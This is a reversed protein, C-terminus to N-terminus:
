PGGGKAGKKKKRRNGDNTAAPTASGPVAKNRAEAAKGKPTTTSSGGSGPVQSHDGSDDEEGDEGTDPFLAAREDAAMYRLRAPEDGQYEDRDLRQGELLTRNSWRLAGEGGRAKSDHTGNFGNSTGTAGVSKVMPFHMAFGDDDPDIVLASGDLATYIDEPTETEAEEPAEVVKAAAGSGAAETKPAKVKPKKPVTLKHTKMNLSLVKATRQADQALTKARAMGGHKGIAPIHSPSPASLSAEGLQPFMSQEEKRKEKNLKKQERMMEIHIRQQEVLEEREAALKAILDGRASSSLLPSAACSPCGSLPSLPSPFLASCIVLGCSYCIPVNPALSHERGQCFCRKHRIKDRSTSGVGDDSTLEQIVADIALMEATPPHSEIPKPPKLTSGQSQAGTTSSQSPSQKPPATAEKVAQRMSSSLSPPEPTAPKSPTQAESVPTRAPSAGKSGTGKGKGKYGLMDLDDERKKMYVTGMGGFAASLEEMRQDHNDIQRPPLPKGIGARAGLSKKGKGAPKGPFSTPPRTEAQKPAPTPSPAPAPFRSDTFSSIFTKSKADGTGLLGELHSRLAQRDDFSDLFPLVQSTVTEKDLGLLQGLQDAWISSGGRAM